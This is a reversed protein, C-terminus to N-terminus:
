RREMMDGYSTVETEKEEVREHENRKAKRANKAKKEVRKKQGCCRCAAIHETNRERRGNM